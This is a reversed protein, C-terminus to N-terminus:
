LLLGAMMIIFIRSTGNITDQDNTTTKEQSLKVLKEIQYRMRGELVKIKDLVVRNEIMSDVLDGAAHGRIGREPDSFAESPPSRELLSHGITRRSAVLLLSQLYQILLHHKLSLLSIGDKMDLEQPSDLAKENLSRIVERVSAISTKMDNLTSM